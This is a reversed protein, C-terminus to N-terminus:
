EDDKQSTWHETCCTRGGGMYDAERNCGAVDCVLGEGTVYSITIPRKWPMEKDVPFHTKHIKQKNM